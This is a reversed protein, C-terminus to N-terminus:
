KIKKFMKTFFRLPYKLGNTVEERIKSQTGAYIFPNICSSLLQLMYGSQQVVFITKSVDSGSSYSINAIRVYIITVFYLLYLLIFSGSIGFLLVISKRRKEIEPDSQHERNSRTLLGRRARNGAFIHRVTFFNLLLILIFPLCPTLISRIWDYAAWELTTYYQLKLGCFRPINDIVYIPEYAFYTSINKMFSLASVIGIVWSAVRNTCYKLKLKQCCIAVFRDFTFAVTLWVSSDIAAFNLSNRISCVPTIFIFSFRFYIGAIRNLIVVTIIVLLDTAAMSVLYYTICLSLGCSRRCLIVIVALNAPVGIAALIPYYIAFVPGIPIGHM